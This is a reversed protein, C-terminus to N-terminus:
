KPDVMVERVARLALRVDKDIKVDGLLRDIFQLTTDYRKARWVDNKMTVM